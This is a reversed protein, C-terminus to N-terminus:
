TIFKAGKSLNDKAWLPQLNTYHFCQKQQEPDTLDFSACPRIHDIHWEGYNNWSMGTVFQSELHNRVEKITCGLLKISNYAKKGYQKKIATKIRSRLNLGVKFNVDFLLKKNIYDKQYTLLKKANKIKYSKIKDKNNKRYNKCRKLVKDKNDEYYKKQKKLIEQKNEEYNLKRKKSIVKKNKNYYNRRKEREEEINNKYKLRRKKNIINKNLMLRTKDYLSKCEKCQNRKYVFDFVSKNKGCKSCTKTQM